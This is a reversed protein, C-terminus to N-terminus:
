PDLGGKRQKAKMPEDPQVHWINSKLNLVYREWHMIDDECTAPQWRRPVGPEAAILTVPVLLSGDDMSKALTPVVQCEYLHLKGGIFEM